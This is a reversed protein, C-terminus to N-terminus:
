EAAIRLVPAAPALAAPRVQDRKAVTDGTNEITIEIPRSCAAKDFATSTMSFYESLAARSPV